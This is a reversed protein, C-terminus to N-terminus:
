KLYKLASNEDTSNEYIINENNNEDNFIKYVENTKNDYRSAGVNGRTLYIKNDEIYYNCKATYNMYSTIVCKGDNFLVIYNKTNANAYVKNVYKKTDNEENTTVDNEAVTNNDENTTVDNEAVTNNDENSTVDTEKANSDNNTVKTNDEKSLFKDYCIYGSLALVLLILIIIVVISGNGKKNTQLENKSEM